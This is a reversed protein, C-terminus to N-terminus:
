YYMRLLSPRSYCGEVVAGVSGIIGDANRRSGPRGRWEGIWRGRIMAM